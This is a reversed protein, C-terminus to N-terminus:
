NRCYALFTRRRARLPRAGPSRRGRFTAATRISEAPLGRAGRWTGRGPQGIDGIQADIRSLRIKAAQGFAHPCYGIYDVHLFLALRRVTAGNNHWERRKAFLFEVLTGFSM